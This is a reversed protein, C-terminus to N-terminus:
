RLEPPSDARRREYLYAHYCHGGQLNQWSFLFDIVPRFILGAIKNKKDMRYAYSSITEDPYGGILTTILQDVGIFVNIFYKVM